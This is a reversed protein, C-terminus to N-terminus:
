TTMPVSCSPLAEPTPLSDLLTKAEESMGITLLGTQIEAFRGEITAYAARKLAEIRSQAVRRLEAWREKFANEGRGFWHLGIDPAFQHPIGLGRCREAIQGRAQAVVREAETVANRWIENQDFSYVATLQREFEALVEAGRQDVATRAVKACLRPLLDSREARTLTSTM